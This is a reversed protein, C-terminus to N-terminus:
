FSYDQTGTQITIWRLETFEEMGAKGGMRGYGSNKIGGFPMQAEDYLTPGNIHCIGSEIRQAVELARNIDQSFVAASLGYGSDNAVSVAEDVTQTRIISVVPGFSEEHYISMASTVHDLVTPQMFTREISGGTCLVAGKSVADDVLNKVRLAAENTIMSGLMAGSGAPGVTIDAARATLDQVFTDAVKEDIVVRETSMCIQGQNMFAGFLTAKIAEDLNADELVLLPAKGGLELVCPKFHRACTEAIRRGVRTSGTFNVRRVTPHAILTDVIAEADEPANTIVNLAGSPLGAKCLVEGLKRHTQPCLESAKLIVTNGCALPTAVARIGLIVPANWPAIGLVVGVPQRIAMAITGPRNAPIVDGTIQTTMAAAERLITAGFHVNHRAWNETAGTEASIVKIFESARAELLDAAKLLIARRADPATKSWGAFAGAAANAAAEADAETAAAARTVLKGTVPDNRDFYASGSADIDNNNIILRAEVM